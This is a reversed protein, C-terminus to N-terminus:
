QSLHQSSFSPFQIISVKSCRKARTVSAESLAQHLLTIKDISRKEKEMVKDNEENIQKGYSCSTKGGLVEQDKGEIEM